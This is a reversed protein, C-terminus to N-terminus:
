LAASQSARVGNLMERAESYRGACRFMWGCEVMRRLDKAQEPTKQEQRM